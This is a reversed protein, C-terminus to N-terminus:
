VEDRPGFADAFSANPRQEEYTGRGQGPVRPGRGSSALGHDRVAASAAEQVAKPDVNGSEDLLDALDTGVSWLGTPTKLRDAAYTEVERRQATTLREALADREAETERLRTRYKAAEKNAGAEDPQEPEPTGSAQAVDDTAAGEAPTETNEATM